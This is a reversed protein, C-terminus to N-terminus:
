VGKLGAVSKMESSEEIRVQIAVAVDTPQRIRLVEVQTRANKRDHVAARACVDPSVAPPSAESLSGSRECTVKTPPISPWLSRIIPRKNQTKPRNNPRAM